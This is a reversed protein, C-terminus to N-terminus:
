ESNIEFNIEIFIRRRLERLFLDAFSAADITFVSFFYEVYNSKIIINYTFFAVCLM